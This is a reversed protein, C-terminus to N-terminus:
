MKDILKGVDKPYHADSASTIKCGNNNLIELFEENIGIDSHNYRYHCGSNNEVYIDYKKALESFEEYIPKLDFSPHLGRIKIQDPHGIQDFIGSKIISFEEEYFEKYITDVDYVNWLIDDSFSCDYNRYNVAHVSGILFDFHYNSLIDKILREERRQYCVELGFTVKIPFTNKKCEEILELYECITNKFRKSFWDNQVDIKRHELYIPAFEKFRHTHDLIHLEDVNHAIASDVFEKVYEVTLPGNELHVHSDVM